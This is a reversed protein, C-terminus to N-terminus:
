CYPCEKRLAREIKAVRKYAKRKLIRILLEMWRYSALLGPGALIFILGNMKPKEAYLAAGLVGLLV